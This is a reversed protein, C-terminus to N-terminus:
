WHDGDLVSLFGVSRYNRAASFVNFDNRLVAHRWSGTLSGDKRQNCLSQRVTFYRNPQRKRNVGCALMAFNQEFFKSDLSRRLQYRLIKNTMGVCYFFPLQIARKM